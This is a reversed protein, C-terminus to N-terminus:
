AWVEIIVGAGSGIFAALGGASGNAVLDMVLDNTTALVAVGSVLEAQSGSLKLNVASISIRTLGTHCANM